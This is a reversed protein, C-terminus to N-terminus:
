YNGTILTNKGVKKLSITVEFNRKCLLRKTRKYNWLKIEDSLSGSVFTKGGMKELCYIDNRHANLEYFIIKDKVYNWMVLSKDEGGVIIM